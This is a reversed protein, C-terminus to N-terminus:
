RSETGVELSGLRLSGLLEAEPKTLYLWAAWDGPRLVAIQRSHYPAVDPGPETTLMTFKPPENSQPPTPRWLGAIAMFPQGKLTFRHPTKPPKAGTFEFFASAPILCRMSHGFSRGESRFNFVPKGNPAAWSWRMTALEVEDPRGTARIIPAPDTIRIHDAPQLDLETQHSPIRLAEKAMMECYAKWLIHEEYDNCM